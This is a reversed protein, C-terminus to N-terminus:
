AFVLMVVLGVVVSFGTVKINSASGTFPISGGSGGTANSPRTSGVAVTGLTTAGIPSNAGAGPTPTPTAAVPAPSGAALVVNPAGGSSPAAAGATYFAVQPVSASIVSICSSSTPAQVQGDAIQSVPCNVSVSITTVPAAPLPSTAGVPSNGFASTVGVPLNGVSSVVPAPSIPPVIATSPSGAPPPAAPTPVLTITKPVNTIIGPNQNVHPACIGALYSLAGQVDDNSAAWASVCEQVTKTFEVDQCYCNSDSNDKCSTLQIWTKMCSPLVSPAPAPPPAPSSPPVVPSIGSGSPVPTDPPPVGSPPPTSASISTSSVPTTAPPPPICQTCITSTSTSTITSVSTSIQISTSTGSIVTNTVPCTTLTTYIIDTTVVAQTTTPIPAPVSSTPTEPSNASTSSVPVSSTTVPSEPTTEPPPIISTEPTVQTTVIPVTTGPASTTPSAPSNGTTSVIPTTEVTPSTYVPVSTNAPVSVSPTPVFGTFTYTSSISTSQPTTQPASPGALTTTNLTPIPYPKSEQPTSLIPTSQAPTSQVPTSSIPTSSPIPPKSSPGCHFDVSHIGVECNSKKDNPPLKVTVSKAEGCQQNVIKTGKQSCSAYQKCPPRGNDYGYELELDTDESSSVHITNISVGKQNANCSFQPSTKSDKSATGSACKGGAFDNSTSGASHSGGFTRKKLGNSCQANQWNLNGYNGLDGNPHDDFGLGSSQKGVCHNNTNYPNTFTDADTWGQAHYAEPSDLFPQTNVTAAAQQVALGLSVLVSISITRM